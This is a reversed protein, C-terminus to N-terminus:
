KAKNKYYQMIGATVRLKNYQEMARNVGRLQGDDGKQVPGYANNIAQAMAMRAPATGPSILNDARRIRGELSASQLTNLQSELTAVRDAIRIRLENLKYQTGLQVAKDDLHQGKSVNFNRAARAALELAYARCAIANVSAEWSIDGGGGLSVGLATHLRGGQPGIAATAGASVGIGLNAAVKMKGSIGYADAYQSRFLNLSPSAEAKFGAFASAGVTASILPGAPTMIVSGGAEVKANVGMEAKGGVKANLLNGVTWSGEASLGLKSALEANTGARLLTLDHIGPKYREGESENVLKNAPQFYLVGEAKGLTVEARAVAKNEQSLTIKGKGTGLLTEKKKEIEVLEIKAFAEVLTRANVLGLDDFEKLSTPKGPKHEEKTSEQPYKFECRTGKEYNLKKGTPKQWLAKEQQERAMYSEDLGDVLSALLEARLLGIDGQKDIREKVSLELVDKLHNMEILQSHTLLINRGNEGATDQPSLTEFQSFQQRLLGCFLKWEFCGSIEERSAPRELRRLMIDECAGYVIDLASQVEDAFRQGDGKGKIESLHVMWQRIHHNNEVPQNIRGNEDCLWNQQFGSVADAPPSSLRPMTTEEDDQVTAMNEDSYEEDDGEVGTLPSRASLKEALLKDNFTPM